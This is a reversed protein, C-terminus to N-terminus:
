YNAQEFTSQFQTRNDVQLFSEIKLLSSSEKILWDDAVYKTKPSLIMNVIIIQGTNDTISM